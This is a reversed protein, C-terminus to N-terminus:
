KEGVKLVQTLHKAKARKQNNVKLESTKTKQTKLESHEGKRLSCLRGRPPCQGHNPLLLSINQHSLKSQLKIETTIGYSSMSFLLNTLISHLCRTNQREHGQFLGPVSEAGVCFPPNIYYIRLAKTGCFPGFCLSNVPFVIVDM